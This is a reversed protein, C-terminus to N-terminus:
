MTYVATFLCLMHNVPALCVLLSDPLFIDFFVEYKKFITLFVIAISIHKQYILKRSQIQQANKGKIGANKIVYLAVLLM